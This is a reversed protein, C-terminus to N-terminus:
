SAIYTGLPFINQQLERLFARIIEDARTMCSTKGTLLSAGAGSSPATPPKRRTPLRRRRVILAPADGGHHLFLRWKNRGLLAGLEAVLSEADAIAARRDGRSAGTRRRGHQRTTTDRYAALARRALRHLRRRRMTEMVFRFASAAMAVWQERRLRHPRALAAIAMGNWDSLVKDDFGPHVRLDGSLARSKLPELAAEEEATLPLDARALRNLINTEELQGRGLRQLPDQVTRSRGTHLITSRPKRGSMSSAKSAESDADPRPLAKNNRERRVFRSRSPSAEVVM